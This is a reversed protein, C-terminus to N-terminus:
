STSPIPFRRVVSSICDSLSLRKCVNHSKRARLVSFSFSTRLSPISTLRICESVGINLKKSFSKCIFDFLSSIHSFDLLICIATPSFYAFVILFIHTFFCSFTILFTRPFFDSLPFAATVCISLSFKVSVQFWNLKGLYWLSVYLVVFFILTSRLSRTCFLFVDLKWDLLLYVSLGCALIDSVM